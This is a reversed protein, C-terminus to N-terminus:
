GAPHLGISPAVEFVNVTVLAVTPLAMEAATVTVPTSSLAVCHDVLVPRTPSAGAFVVLGATDPVADTFEVSFALVPLQAAVGLGVKL